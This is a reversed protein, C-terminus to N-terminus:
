KARTKRAPLRGTPWRSTRTPEAYGETKQREHLSVHEHPLDQYPVRSLLDSILNLRGREKDDSRIVYL